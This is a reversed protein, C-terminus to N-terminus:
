GEHIYHNIHLAVKAQEVYIYIVAITVYILFKRIDTCIGRSFIMALMYIEIEFKSWYLM